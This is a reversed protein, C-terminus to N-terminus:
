CMIEKVGSGTDKVLSEDGCVLVMRSTGMIAIVESLSIPLIAFHCHRGKLAMHRQLLRKIM